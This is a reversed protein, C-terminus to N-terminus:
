LRVEKHSSSSPQSKVPTETSSSSTISTNVTDTESTTAKLPTGSSMLKEVGGMKEVLEKETLNACFCLIM